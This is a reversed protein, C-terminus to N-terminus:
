FVITVFPKRSQSTVFFTLHKLAVGFLTVNQSRRALQFLPGVGDPLLLTRCLNGAM